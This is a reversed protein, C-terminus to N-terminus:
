KFYSSVSIFDSSLKFQKHNKEDGQGVELDRTTSIEDQIM